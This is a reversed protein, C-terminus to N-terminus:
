HLPEELPPQSPRPLNSSVSGSSIWGGPLWGRLAEPLAQRWTLWFHRATTAAWGHQVYKRSSTVVAAGTCRLPTQHRRAKWVLLHDEGYRAQEDYGGLRLFLERDLCIAQDGFPLGLVRSRFGAGLENCVMLRPRPRAFRLQFYHLSQPYGDASRRLAAISGDPVRSDSHLFWLHSGGALLTARNMQAARGAEGHTWTVTCCLGAEVAREALDPPEPSVASLILEDAEGLPSLDPLLQRWTTDGPGIPVIM